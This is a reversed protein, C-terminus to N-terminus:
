IIKIYNRIKKTKNMMTVNIQSIFKAYFMECNIDVRLYCLLSKHILKEEPRCCLKLTLSNGKTRLLIVFHTHLQRLTLSLEALSNYPSLMRRSPHAQTAPVPKFSSTLLARTNEERQTSLSEPQIGPAPLSKDSIPSMRAKRIGARATLTLVVCLSIKNSDLILKSFEDTPKYAWRM